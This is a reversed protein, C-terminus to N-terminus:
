LTKYYKHVDTMQEKYLRSQSAPIFKGYIGVIFDMRDAFTRYNKTTEVIYISELLQFARGGNHRDFIPADPESPAVIPVPGVAAQRKAEKTAIDKMITNLDITITTANGTDLAKKREKQKRHVRIAMVIGVVSFALLFYALVM